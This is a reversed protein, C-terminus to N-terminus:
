KSLAKDLELAMRMERLKRVPTTEVAARRDAQSQANVLLNYNKVYQQEITSGGRTDVAGQLYGALGTLSGQLDVGNHLGFRRDEISVIALKMTDAIRDGPVVWRRQTFIWAIPNGAADVMTSIIPVDGNLLQASDEAAADSLRNAAAGAGGIIPFALAAALVGATLVYLILKAPTAVARHRDWM